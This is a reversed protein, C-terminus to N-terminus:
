IKKSLYCFVGPQKWSKIHLQFTQLLHLVDDWSTAQYFTISLYITWEEVSQYYTLKQFDFESYM